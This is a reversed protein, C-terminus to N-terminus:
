IIIVAGEDVTLTFTDDIDVPKTYKSDDQAM